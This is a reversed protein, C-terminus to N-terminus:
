EKAWNISDYLLQAVHKTSGSLTTATGGPEVLHVTRSGQSSEIDELRNAICFSTTNAKIQNSAVDLLQETSVNSLLKFGVLTASAGFHDRLARLIKPTRTLQISLKEQTSSIKGPAREPTYDSVAAAHLVLGAAKHGLLVNKLDDASTFPAHDVGPIAGFREITSTPALLTTSHGEAAYKQALAHGFRGSSFNGIYRVDDIPEKTGGATIIVEPNHPMAYEEILLARLM